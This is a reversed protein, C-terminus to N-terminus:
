IPCEFNLTDPCSIVPATTDEQTITHICTATNNCSDKVFYTRQIVRPCTGYETQGTFEFEEIGNNDEVTGGAAEFEEITLLPDPIDEYCEVLTDPPCTIQPAITDDHIIEHECQDFNGCSDVVEYTRRIIRPCHGTVTQGLYNFEEIGCNDSASGGAAIFEPLTQYRPPLDSMKEITDNPPCTITPLEEDDITITQICINVNGCLDAIQYTRTVVEPCSNGDSVESLLTFSSEDIGCNDLTDGGAAMFDVLTTYPPQEEISCVAELDGPCAITPSTIDNVMIIHQCEASNDCSDAVQYTRTIITPCEGTIVEGLLIFTELGCNDSAIGGATEFETLS